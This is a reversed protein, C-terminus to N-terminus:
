RLRSALLALKLLFPSTITSSGALLSNKLAKRPLAAGAAAGPLLYDNRYDHRYDDQGPGAQIWGVEPCGKSMSEAQSHIPMPRPSARIM